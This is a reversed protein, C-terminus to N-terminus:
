LVIRISDCKFAKYAPPMKFAITKDNFFLQPNFNYGKIDNSFSTFKSGVESQFLRGFIKDYDSKNEGSPIGVFNEKKIVAIFKGAEKTKINSFHILYYDAPVGGWYTDVHFVNVDPNLEGNTYVTAIIPKGIHRATGSLWKLIIPHNISILVVSVAIILLLSGLVKILKRLVM